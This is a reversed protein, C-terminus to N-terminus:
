RCRRHDKPTEANPVAHATAPQKLNKTTLTPNHDTPHHQQQRHQQEKHKPQTPNQDHHLINTPQPPKQTHTTPQFPQLRLTQTSQTKLTPHRQTSQHHIPEPTTKTHQHQNSLTTPQHHQENARQHGSAPQTHHPHLPSNTSTPHDTTQAHPTM